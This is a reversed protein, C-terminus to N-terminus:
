GETLGSVIKSLAEYGRTSDQLLHQSTVSQLFGPLFIAQLCAKKFSSTDINQWEGLDHRFSKKRFFFRSDRHPLQKM